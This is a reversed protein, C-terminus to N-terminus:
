VVFFYFIRLPRAAPRRKGPDRRYPFYPKSASRYAPNHLKCASAPDFGCLPSNGPHLSFLSFYLNCRFAPM